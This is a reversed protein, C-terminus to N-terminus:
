HSRATLSEAAGWLVQKGQETIPSKDLVALASRVLQRIREEVARRAGTRELVDLAQEVEDPTARVRAVRELRQRDPGRATSLGLELLATRKGSRLDSGTPKGTHQPNGFAGILDDRLQFAVGLPRAYRNLADLVDPTGDALLAGLELPGRVTYSATKLLYTTEIDSSESLLDLEQGAVVDLQMSAYRALVRCLRDPPVELNALVELALSSAHDGALVGARDGLDTSDFREALEAHVAPGGRRMRDGDMWDDHILLYAQLLELGVGLQFTAAAPPTPVAAMQGAAALACRLRKGGRMCLGRLARLPETLAPGHQEAYSLKEDFLRRLRVDVEAQVKTLLRQFAGSPDSPNPPAPRGVKRSGGVMKRSAM